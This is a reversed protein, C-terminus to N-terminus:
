VMFAFDLNKIGNGIYSSGYFRTNIKHYAQYGVWLKSRLTVQTETFDKVATWAGKPFDNTIDDLFYNNYIGDEREIKERNDKLQAPRFHLYNEFHLCDNKKLGRFAENRRM